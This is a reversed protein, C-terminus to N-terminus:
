KFNPMKLSTPDWPIRPYCSQDPSPSSQLSCDWSVGPVRPPKVVVSCSGVESESHPTPSLCSQLLGEVRRGVSWGWFWINVQPPLHLVFSCYRQAAAFKEHIACTPWYCNIFIINIGLRTKTRKFNVDKRMLCPWQHWRIAGASFCFSCQM